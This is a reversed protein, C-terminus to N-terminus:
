IMMRLLDYTASLYNRGCIRQEEKKDQFYDMKWHVHLIRRTHPIKKKEFTFLITVSEHNLTTM